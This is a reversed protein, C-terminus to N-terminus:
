PSYTQRASGPLTGGDPVYGGQLTPEATTWESIDLSRLSRTYLFPANHAGTLVHLYGNGDRVIGPADHDDNRRYAEALMRWGRVKRTALDLSCVYTPTGRDGKVSVEAWVVYAM